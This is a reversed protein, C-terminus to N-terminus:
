SSLAGAAIEKQADKGDRVLAVLPEIGAHFAIKVKNADNWALNSLTGAANTKQGETGSRILAM